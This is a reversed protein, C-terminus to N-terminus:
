IGELNLQVNTRVDENPLGSQLQRRLDKMLVLGDDLKQNLVTNPMAREVDDQSWQFYKLVNDVSISAVLVPMLFLLLLRNM